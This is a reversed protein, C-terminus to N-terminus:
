RASGEGTGSASRVTADFVAIQTLEGESPHLVKADLAAVHAVALDAHGLDVGLDPGLLELEDAAVIHGIAAM